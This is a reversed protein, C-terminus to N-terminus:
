ENSEGGLNYASYWGCTFQHINPYKELLHKLLKDPQSDLYYMDQGVSDCVAKLQNSDYILDGDIFLQNSKILCTGKKYFFVLDIIYDFKEADVSFEGYRQNGPIMEGCVASQEPFVYKTKFIQDHVEFMPYYDEEDVMLHIIQTDFIEQLKKLAIEAWASSYTTYLCIYDITPAIKVLVRFVETKGNGKPLQEYEVKWLPYPKVLRFEGM